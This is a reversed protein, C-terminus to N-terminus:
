ERDVESRFEVRKATDPHSCETRPHQQEPIHSCGKLGSDGGVERLSYTQNRAGNKTIGSVRIANQAEHSNRISLCRDAVESPTRWLSRRGVLIYRIGSHEAIRAVRVGYRSNRIESRRALVAQEEVNPGASLLPRLFARYHDPYM